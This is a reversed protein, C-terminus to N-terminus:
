EEIEQEQKKNINKNKNRESVIYDYDAPLCKEFKCRAYVDGQKIILTQTGENKITVCIEGEDSPRNYIDGTVWNLLNGLPAFIALIEDTQMYVKLGSKITKSQGSQITLSNKYPYYMNYYGVRKNWRSPYYVKLGEEKMRSVAEFGRFVKAM